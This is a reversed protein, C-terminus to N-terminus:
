SQLLSTEFFLKSQQWCGEVRRYEDTYRGFTLTAAATSGAAYVYAIMTWRGTAVDGNIEILPNQFSHWMGRMQSPVAESFLRQITARGEFHGFAASDITANETFLNGFEKALGDDPSQCLADALMGFRAKLQRIDEIDILRQLANATVESM